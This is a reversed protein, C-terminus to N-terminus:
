KNKSSAKKKLIKMYFNADRLFKSWYYIVADYGGNQSKQEENFLVINASTNSENRSFRGKESEFYDKKSEMHGSSIFFAVKKNTFDFNGRERGFLINFYEAEYKNLLYSDNIGMSDLKSILYKNQVSDKTLEYQAYSYLNVFILISTIFIRKM